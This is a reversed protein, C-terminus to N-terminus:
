ESLAAIPLAENHEKVYEKFKGLYELTKPFTKKLTESDMERVNSNDFDVVTYTVNGNRATTTALEVIFNAPANKILTGFGYGFTGKLYILYPEFDEDSGRPRIGIVTPRQYTMITETGAIVTKVMEKGNVIVPAKVLAKGSKVETFASLSVYKDTLIHTTGTLKGTAADFATYQTGSAFVVIEVEEPKYQVGWGTVFKGDADYEPKAVLMGIPATIPDNNPRIQEFPITPRSGDVEYLENYQKEAEEPTCGTSDMIMEIVENKTM